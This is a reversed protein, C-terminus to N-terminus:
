PAEWQATLMPALRNWHADARDLAIQERRQVQALAEEPSARGDEVRNLANRLDNDYEAWTPMQPPFFANPSKALALFVGILPNPHHGLFDPSCRALPSFKLQGLCLKEMPGQSEVYRIFAFAERPHTSGRPIVLEDCDVVSAGARAPDASPFAAAGWEFGPPAYNRIFNYIWVGQLIMAVRGTFFPDQPSAYTGFGSRLAMLNQAGFRRPYSEIWRYAAVTQPATATIAHAGDWLQGGFWASWQSSWAGPQDPLHGIATLRGDPSWRALKENFRELEEISRPPQEPDLGAERFLRKNWILASSSPTSPLAWLHDRYTGMRWFVDIYDQRSLGGEAAMRDLPILANNEAFPVVNKAYVGALDPPVGGAIALMLRQDIQSTSTFDVFIRDQSANFDDVVARMAEAEFGTWKDWYTIVVRQGARPEPAHCGALILSLGLGLAM